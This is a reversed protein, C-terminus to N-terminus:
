NALAKYYGHKLTADLWRWYREIFHELPALLQPALGTELLDGRLDMLSMDQMANAVLRNAGEADAAYFLATLHVKGVRFAPLLQKGAAGRKARERRTKEICVHRVREPQTADLFWRYPVDEIVLTGDVDAISVRFLLSPRKSGKVPQVKLGEPDSECGIAIPRKWRESLNEAIEDLREEMGGLLGALLGRAAEDADGDEDNGRYDHELSVLTITMDGLWDDIREDKLLTADFQLLSDWLAQLFAIFSLENFGKVTEKPPKKAGPQRRRLAKVVPMADVRMLRERALPDAREIFAHLCGLYDDKGTFEASGDGKLPLSFGPDDVALELKRLDDRQKKPTKYGVHSIFAEADKLARLAERGTPVGGSPNPLLPPIDWAPLAKLVRTRFDDLGYCGGEQIMPELFSALRGLQLPRLQSLTRLLEDFHKLQSDSPTLGLREAIRELWPRFGGGLGQAIRREDVVHFDALGGQDTAHNLGVLVVVLADKGEDRALLNRYKTLQDKEDIWGLSELREIADGATGPSEKWADWLGKATRFFCGTCAATYHKEAHAALREFLSLIEAPGLSQLIFRVERSGGKLDHDWNSVIHDALAEVFLNM